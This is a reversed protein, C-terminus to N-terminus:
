TSRPSTRARAKLRQAIPSTAGAKCACAGSAVLAAAIRALRSIMSTKTVSMPSPNGAVPVVGHLFGIPSNWQRQPVAESPAFTAQVARCQPSDPHRLGVVSIAASRPSKHIVSRTARHSRCRRERKELRWPTENFFGIRWAWHSASYRVRVASGRRVMTVLGVAILNDRDTELYRLAPCRPSVGSQHVGGNPRHHRGSPPVSAVVVIGVGIFSTLAAFRRRRTHARREARRTEPGSAAM